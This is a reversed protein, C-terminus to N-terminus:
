LSESTKTKGTHSNLKDNMQPYLTTNVFRLAFWDKTLSIKHLPQLNFDGLIDWGYNATLNSKYRLSSKKPYAFWLIADEMLRPYVIEIRNEIQAKDTVFILAFDIESIQILSEKIKVDKLCDLEQCFDEPENLILIEDLDKPLQLKKFLPTM